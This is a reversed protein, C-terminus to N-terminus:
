THITHIRHATARFFASDHARMGSSALSKGPSVRNRHLPRSCQPKRRPKVPGSRATQDRVGDVVACGRMRGWREGSHCGRDHAVLGRRKPGSPLPLPGAPQATGTKTLNQRLHIIELRTCVIVVHSWRGTVHSRRGTVHSRRGTMHSRRGTVHSWRSTMHSRCGMVRSRPAM